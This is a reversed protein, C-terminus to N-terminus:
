SKSRTARLRDIRGEIGESGEHHGCQEVSYAHLHHLEPEVADLPVEPVTPAQRLRRKM